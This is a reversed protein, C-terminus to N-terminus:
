DDNDEHDIEDEFFMCGCDWVDCNYQSDEHDDPDHGCTCMM